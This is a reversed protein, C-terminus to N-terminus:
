IIELYKDFESQNFWDQLPRKKFPMGGYRDIGDWTIKWLDEDREANGTTGKPVKSFEILTKIKM